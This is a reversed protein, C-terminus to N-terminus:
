YWALLMLLFGLCISLTSSSNSNIFLENSEASVVISPQKTLANSIVLQTKNGFIHINNNNIVPIAPAASTSNNISIMTSNIEFEKFNIESDLDDPFDTDNLVQYYNYLIKSTFFYNVKNPQLVSAQLQAAQVFMNIDYFPNEKLRLGGNVFLSQEIYAFCNADVMDQSNEPFHNYDCEKFKLKSMMESLTDSTQMSFPTYPCGQSLADTCERKIDLYEPQMIVLDEYSCIDLNDYHMSYYEQGNKNYYFIILKSNHLSISGYFYSYNEVSIGTCDVKGQGPLYCTNDEAIFYNDTINKLYIKSLDPFIDPTGLPYFREIDDANNLQEKMDFYANLNIYFPKPLQTKIQSNLADSFVCSVGKDQYISSLCEPFTRIQEKSFNKIEERVAAVVSQLFNDLENNPYALLTKFLNLKEFGSLHFPENNQSVDDQLLRSNVPAEFSSNYGNIEKITNEITDLDAESLTTNLKMKYTEKLFSAKDQPSLEALIDDYEFNSFTSEDVFSQEIYKSMSHNSNLFTFVDRFSSPICVAGKGDKLKNYFFVLRQIEYSNFNTMSKMSEIMPDGRYQVMVKKMIYTYYTDKETYFPNKSMTSNSAKQIVSNISSLTPTPTKLNGLNLTNSVTSKGVKDSNWACKKSTAFINVFDAVSKNKFLNSMIACNSLKKFEQIMDKIHSWRFKFYIIKKTIPDSVSLKDWQSIPRLLGRRLYFTSNVSFTIFSALCSDIKSQYSMLSQNPSSILLLEDDTLLTESVENICKYSEKTNVSIKSLSVVINKLQNSLIYNLAVKYQQPDFCRGTTGADVMSNILVAQELPCLQGIYDSVRNLCSNLYLLNKAPLILGSNCSLGEYVSLDLLRSEAVCILSLM